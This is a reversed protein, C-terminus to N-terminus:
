RQAKAPEGQMLRQTEEVHKQSGALGPSNQIASKYAGTQRQEHEARLSLTPQPQPRQTARNGTNPNIAGKPNAGFYYYAAIAAVAVGAIRFLPIPQRISNVPEKARNQSVGQHAEGCRRCASEGIADVLGCNRCKVKDM